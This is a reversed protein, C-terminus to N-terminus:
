GAMYDRVVQVGTFVALGVSVFLIGAQRAFLDARPGDIGVGAAM